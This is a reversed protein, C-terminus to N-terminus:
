GGVPRQRHFCGPRLPLMMGTRHRLANGKAGELGWVAMIRTSDILLRSAGQVPHCSITVALHARTPRDARCPLESVLYAPNRHDVERGSGCLPESPRAFTAAEEQGAVHEM